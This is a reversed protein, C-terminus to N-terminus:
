RRKKTAARTLRYRPSPTKAIKKKNRTSAATGELRINPGTNQGNIFENGEDDSVAGESSNDSSLLSECTFKQGDIILNNGVIRASKNSAKAEKCKERLLRQIEREERTLDNAIFVKARKLGETNGKIAKFIEIKKLRRVFEIIVPNKPKGRTHYINVVDSAEIGVNLLNNLQAISTELINDGEQNIQLGFVAINNKRVRNELIELRKNLQKNEEELEAIKARESNLQTNLDAKVDLINANLERFKNDLGDIKETLLDLLTKLTNNSINENKSKDGM